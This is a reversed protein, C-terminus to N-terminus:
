FIWACYCMHKANPSGKQKIKGKSSFTSPIFHQGKGKDLVEKLIGGEDKKLLQYCGNLPDDQELFPVRHQEPHIKLRFEFADGEKRVMCATYAMELLTAKELRRGHPLAEVIAEPLDADEDTM